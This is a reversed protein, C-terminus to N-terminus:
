EGKLKEWEQRVREAWVKNGIREFFELAKELLANDKRLKGLEYVVGYYENDQKGIEEYTAMVERLCEVAKEKEGRAAHFKGELYRAYAATEKEELKKVSGKAEELLKAATELDGKEIWVEAIGLMVLYADPQADIQRCLELARQYFELAKEYDEMDFYINALGRYAYVIGHLDGAQECVEFGRRYYKLAEEYKGLSAYVAGLNNCSLAIGWADGIRESVGLNKNYIELAKDYEGRGLYILGINHYSTAIGWIDGTREWLKLGKQYFELAKQHEGRDLLIIGINNYTAAMGRVDDIRERIKLAKELFELAREYDGLYWYCTGIRHLAAGTEKEANRREFMALARKQLEIARRYDGKREFVYGKVSWVGALQLESGELGTLHREAKEAELWANEYDGKHIYIESKRRYIKGAEVHDTTCGIRRDLIGLAEEYRGELALVDALEELLERKKVADEGTDGLVGLVGEFFEIAEPNAFRRAAIKGAKIGYEVFKERHEAAGYHRAIQGWWKEERGHLREIVEGAKQHMVKKRMGLVEGYVVERVTNSRFMYGEKFEESECLFNQAILEEIADLLEEEEMGALAKVADYEFVRGLIACTGLVKKAKESLKSVRFKVFKRVTDPLAMKKIAEIERLGLNKIATLVEVTFLPNGSTKEYIYRTIEGAEKLGTHEVILRVEKEGLSALKLHTCVREINLNMLTKGFPTEATGHEEVYTAVAIIGESRINRALYHFFALTGSDALHLDDIFLLVPKSKSIGLFQSLLFEFLRRREKTAGAPTREEVELEQFGALGLPTYADKGTLSKGYNELATTIPFFPPEREGLCLSSLVVFDEKLCRKAFEGALRTKGVGMEGGILVAGGKGNKAEGMMQELVALEKERNVFIEPFVENAM